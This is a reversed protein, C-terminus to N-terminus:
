NPKASHTFVNGTHENSEVIEEMPGIAHGTELLHQAFTSKGKGYKFDHLHEQFRASFLRGTQGACKM